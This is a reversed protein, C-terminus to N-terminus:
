LLTLPSPHPLPRVLCQRLALHTQRLLSAVHLQHVISLPSVVKFLLWITTMGPVALESIPCLLLHIDSYLQLRGGDLGTTIGENVYAYWFIRARILVDCFPGLGSNIPPPNDLNCLSYVQSM